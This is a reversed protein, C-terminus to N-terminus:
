IPIFAGLILTEFHLIGLFFFFFFSSPQLVYVVQKLSKSHNLLHPILIAIFLLDVSSFLFNLFLDVSVNDTAKQCLHLILLHPFSPKKMLHDQFLQINYPFLFSLGQRVGYMFILGLYTLFRFM